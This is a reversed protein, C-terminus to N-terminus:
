TKAEEPVIELFKEKNVKYGFPPEGTMWHGEKAGRERGGSMREAILRREHQAFSAIMHFMLEGNTTETEFNESSSRFKIKLENLKEVASILHKLSRFFRDLRYVIVIEFERKEADEFLKQLAPRKNIQLSGSFGGDTYNHKEDLSYNLRQCYEVLRDKQVDLGHGKEEQADTSVRLYIAVRKKQTDLEQFM